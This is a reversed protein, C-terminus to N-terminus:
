NEAAANKDNDHSSLLFFAHVRNSSVFPAIMVQWIHIM